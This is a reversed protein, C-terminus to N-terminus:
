WRGERGVARPPMSGHRNAHVPAQCCAKGARQREREMEQRKSEIRQYALFAALSIAASTAFVLRMGRLRREVQRLRKISKGAHLLDLEHRLDGASRYRKEPKPDCARLLIQNLELHLTSETTIESPLEPFECRDKGTAIEYLVKGLSYIDSAPGVPGEPPMFGATGVM